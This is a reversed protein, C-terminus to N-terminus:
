LRSGGLGVGEVVEVDDEEEEEEEDEVDDLEGLFDLFSLRMIQERPLLFSVITYLVGLSQM